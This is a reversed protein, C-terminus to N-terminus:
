KDDKAVALGDVFVDLLRLVTDQWGARDSAYCIGIMAQMVDEAAVDNRLQGASVAHDMLDNLAQLLRIRLNTYIEASSDFAPSLAVLMGRKTAVMRVNAHLWTRLAVIPDASQGLEGALAILEEVEHEYVAEFLAERTRFHRYLTGIGVGATRAVAELSADPGGISFVDAAAKLM